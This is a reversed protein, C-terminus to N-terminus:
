TCSDTAVVYIECRLDTDMLVWIRHNLLHSRPSVKRDFPGCVQYRVMGAAAVSDSFVTAFKAMVFEPIWTTQLLEMFNSNPPTEITM